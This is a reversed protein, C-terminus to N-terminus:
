RRALAHSHIDGLTARWAKRDLGMKTGAMSLNLYLNRDAPNLRAAEALLRVDSPVSLNARFGRWLPGSDGALSFSPLAEQGGSRLCALFAEFAQAYEGRQYREIGMDFLARRSSTKDGAEAANRSAGDAPRPRSSTKSRSRRPTRRPQSPPSKKNQAEKLKALKSQADDHDPDKELARELSKIAGSADGLNARADAFGVWANADDSRIALAEAFYRSAEEYHKLELAVSGVQIAHEYKQASLSDQNPELSPLLLSVRRVAERAADSSPSLDLARKYAELAEGPKNQEELANGLAFHASYNTADIAVAEQFNEQARDWAKLTFYLRGIEYFVGSRSPAANAPFLELGSRYAAIADEARGVREAARAMGLLPEVRNPYRDAAQKYADFAPEYQEQDYLNKAGGMLAAYSNRQLHRYAAFATGVVLIALVCVTLFCGRSGRFGSRKYLSSSRRMQEIRRLRAAFRTAEWEPFEWRPLRREKGSDYNGRKKDNTDNKEGNGIQANDKDKERSDNKEDEESWSDGSSMTFFKAFPDEFISAESVAKEPADNEAPYEPRNAKVDEFLIKKFASEEAENEKASNEESNEKSNEESNKEPPSEELADEESDEELDEKLDEELLDEELVTEEAAREEAVFSEEGPLPFLLPIVPYEVERAVDPVAADWAAFL